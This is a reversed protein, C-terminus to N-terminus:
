FVVVRNRGDEKARYLANDVNLFVTKSDSGDQYQAVSFSATNQGIDGFIHEQIKAM